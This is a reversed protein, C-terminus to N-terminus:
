EYRPVSPYMWLVIPMEYELRMAVACQVDGGVKGAAAIHVIFVDYSSQM